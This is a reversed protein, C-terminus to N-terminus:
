RVEPRKWEIKLAAAVESVAREAEAHGEMDPTIARWYLQTAEIETMGRRKALFGVIRKQRKYEPNDAIATKAGNVKTSSVAADVVEGVPVAGNGEGGYGGGLGEDEFGKGDTSNDM